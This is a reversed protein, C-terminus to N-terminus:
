NKKVVWDRSVNTMNTFDKVNLCFEDEMFNLIALYDNREVGKCSLYSVTIREM